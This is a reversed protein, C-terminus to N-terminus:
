RRTVPREHAVVPLTEGVRLTDRFQEGLVRGRRREEDHAEHGARNGLEHPLNGRRGRTPQGGAIM